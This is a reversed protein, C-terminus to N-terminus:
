DESEETTTKPKKRFSARELAELHPLLFEAIEDEEELVLGWLDLFFVKGGKRAVFAIGYREGDLKQFAFRSADGWSFLDSQEEIEIPDGPGMRNSLKLGGWEIGYAMLADSRKPEYTLNCNIYISDAEDNYYYYIQASGDFYRDTDWEEFDKNVEIEFWEEADEVTVVAELVDESLELEEASFLYIAAFGVIGIVGLVIAVVVGIIIALVTKRRTDAPAAGLAGAANAPLPPPSPNRFPPPTSEMSTGSEM